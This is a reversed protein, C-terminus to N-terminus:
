VRYLPSRVPLIGLIRLVLRNRLHMLRALGSLEPHSAGEEPHTYRVTTLTARMRRHVRMYSDARQEFIRGRAALPYRLSVPARDRYIPRAFESRRLLFIQDSFGYGIAFEGRRERTEEGVTDSMWNPNAVAITTDTEMLALSPTIWDAKAELRVDADSHVMFDSGEVCVAALAWDTYPRVPGLESITLGTRELAEPLLDEVFWYDTLDGTRRREAALGEADARDSVNNILAVRRAFPYGHEEAMRRM